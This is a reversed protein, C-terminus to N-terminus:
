MIACILIYAMTLDIKKLTKQKKDIIYGYIKGYLFGTSSNVEEVPLKENYKQYQTLAEHWCNCDKLTYWKTYWNKSLYLFKYGELLISKVTQWVICMMFILANM